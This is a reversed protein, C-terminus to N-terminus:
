GYVGAWYEEDSCAFDLPREARLRQYRAWHLDKAENLSVGCSQRLLKLAGLIKCALILADVVAWQEATPEIAM